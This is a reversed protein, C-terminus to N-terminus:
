VGGEKPILFFNQVAMIIRGTMAVEVLEMPHNIQVWVTFESDRMFLTFESYINILHLLNNAYVDPSVYDGESLQKVMFDSRKKVEEFLKYKAHMKNDRTYHPLNTKFIVGLGKFLDLTAGKM